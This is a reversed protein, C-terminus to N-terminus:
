DEADQDSTLGSDEPGAQAAQNKSTNERVHVPRGDTAAYLAIGAAVSANLSSIPGPLDIRVIRQCQEKVLRRMGKGESGIVLVRRGKYGSLERAPTAGDADLGVIEFGEDALTTLTRALNVVRAIKASETAGASARVVVPTVPASRDKAVIIGDAGMAVASRVIAGFNHPDTVSDLAVFLSSDHMYKLLYELDVFSYEGGIAVLGQHRLGKALVDLERTSREEMTIKAASCLRAIEDDQQAEAAYYVVAVRRPDSRLAERVAHTGALMRRM